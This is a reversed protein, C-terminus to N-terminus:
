VFAWATASTFDTPISIWEDPPQLLRFLGAHVDSSCTRHLVMVQMLIKFVDEPHESVIVPPVTLFTILKILRKHRINSPFQDHLHSMSVNSRICVRHKVWNRYQNMHSWLNWMYQDVFHHCHEEIDLVWHFYRHSLLFDNPYKIYSRMSLKNKNWLYFLVMRSFQM